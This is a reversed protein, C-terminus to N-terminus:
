YNVLYSLLSVRKYATVTRTKLVTLEVPVYEEKTVEGYKTVERYKTVEEERYTPDPKEPATVSYSFSYLTKLPEDYYATITRTTGADIYKAASITTSLNTSLTILFEASFEGGIDDDNRITLEVWCAPSGDFTFYNYGQGGIITYDLPVYETCPELDCVIEIDTYPEMVIYPEEVTYSELTYYTDTDLYSEEAPYAVRMVPVFAFILVFVIVAAIVITLAKGEKSLRQWINQRKHAM